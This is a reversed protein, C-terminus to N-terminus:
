IRVRLSRLGTTENNRARASSTSQMYFCTATHILRRGNRLANMPWQKTLILTCMVRQFAKTKFKIGLNKVTFRSSNLLYFHVIFNAYLVWTIYIYICVDCRRRYEKISQFIVNIKKEPSQTKEEEIYLANRPKQSLTNFYWM